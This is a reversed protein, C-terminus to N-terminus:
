ARNSMGAERRLESLSGGCRGREAEKMALRLLLAQLDTPTPSPPMLDRIGPGIAKPLDYKPRM